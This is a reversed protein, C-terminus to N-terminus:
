ATGNILAALRPGTRQGLALRSPGQGLEAAFAQELLTAPASAAGALLAAYWDVVSRKAHHCVNPDLARGRWDVVHRAFSEVVYMPRKGTRSSSPGWILQLRRSGPSRIQRGAM